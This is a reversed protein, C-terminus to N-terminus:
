FLRKIDFFSCIAIYVSPFHFQFNGSSGVSEITTGPSDFSLSVDSNRDSASTHSTGRSTNASTLGSGSGSGSNSPSPSGLPSFAASPHFSTATRLSFLDVPSFNSNEADLHTKSNDFSYIDKTVSHSPLTRIPRINKGPTRVSDQQLKRKEANLVEIDNTLKEIESETRSAEGTLFDVKSNLDLTQSEYNSIQKDRFIIQSLLTNNHLEMHAILTSRQKASEDNLKKQSDENNKEVEIEAKYDTLVKKVSSVEKKLDSCENRYLQAHLEANEKEKIAVELDLALKEKIDTMASEYTKDGTPDVDTLPVNEPSGSPSSEKNSFSLISSSDTVVTSFSGRVSSSGVKHRELHAERETIEISKRNEYNEEELKKIRSLLLDNNFKINELERSKELIIKEQSSLMKDKTDKLIQISGILDKIEIEKMKMKEEEDHIRRMEVVSNDRKEIDLNNIKEKLNGIETMFSQLKSEANNFLIGIEDKRLAIELKENKLGVVLNKLCSIEESDKKKEANKEIIVREYEKNLNEMAINKIGLNKRLLTGDEKINKIENQTATLNESAHMLKTKLESIEIQKSNIENNKSTNLANNTYILSTYKRDSVTANEELKRNTLNLNAIDDHLSLVNPDNSIKEQYDMEEKQPSCKESVIVDLDTQNGSDTMIVIFAKTEEFVESQASVTLSSEKTLKITDNIRKKRSHKGGSSFFGNLFILSVFLISLLLLSMLHTIEQSLPYSMETLYITLKGYSGPESTHSGEDAEKRIELNDVIIIPAIPTLDKTPAVAYIPQLDTCKSQPPDIFVTAPAIHPLLYSESQLDNSPLINSPMDVQLKMHGLKVYVEHVRAQFLHLGSLLVLTCLRMTLANSILM